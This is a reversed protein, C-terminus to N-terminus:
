KKIPSTNNSTGEGITNHNYFWTLLTQVIKVYMEYFLPLVTKVFKMYKVGYNIFEIDSYVTNVSFFM